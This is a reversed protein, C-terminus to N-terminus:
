GRATGQDTAKQPKDTGHDADNKRRRDPLRRQAIGLSRRRDSQVIWRDERHREGKGADPKERHQIAAPPGLDFPVAEVSLINAALCTDASGGRRCMSVHRRPRGRSGPADPQLPWLREKRHVSTRCLGCLTFMGLANSMLLGGKSRRVGFSALVSR